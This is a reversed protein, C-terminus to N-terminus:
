TQSSFFINELLRVMRGVKRPDVVKGVSGSSTEELVASLTHVERVNSKKVVETVNDFNLGGGAMIRTVGASRRVLDGITGANELINGKGGSTLVRDVGLNRLEDVARLLNESEDIARHFTVSLPRAHALLKRTRGVDVEGGDTLIGFVVGDAGLEKAQEIQRMMADIEPNSYCFDGPRPRVMVHLAISISKRGSRIVGSEPTTGGHELHACLEVRAAGGVQAAIASEASDICVELVM